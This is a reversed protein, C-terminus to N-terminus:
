RWSLYNSTQETSLTKLIWSLDKLDQSFLFPFFNGALQRNWSWWRFYLQENLILIPKQREWKNCSSLAVQVESYTHPRIDIDCRRLLESLGTHKDKKSVGILRAKLGSGMRLREWRLGVCWVCVDCGEQSHAHRHGILDLVCSPPPQDELIWIICKMYIAFLAPQQRKVSKNEQFTWLIFHIVGYPSFCKLSTWNDQIIEILELCGNKKTFFSVAWVSLTQKYFLLRFKNQQDTCQVLSQLVCACLCVRSINVPSVLQACTFLAVPECLVNSKM